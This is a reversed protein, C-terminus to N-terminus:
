GLLGCKSSDRGQPSRPFILDARGAPELFAVRAHGAPSFRWLPNDAVSPTQAGRVGISRSCPGHALNQQGRMEGFGRPVLRNGRGRDSWASCHIPLAQERCAALWGGSRYTLIAVATARPFKANEQVLELDGLGLVLDALHAPKLRQEM